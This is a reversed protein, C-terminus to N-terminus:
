TDDQLGSPQDFYYVLGLRAYVDWTTQPSISIFTVGVYPNISTGSEATSTGTTPNFATPNVNDDFVVDAGVIWKLPLSEKHEDGSYYLGQAHASSLAAAGAVGAFLVRKM